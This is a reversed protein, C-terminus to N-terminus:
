RAWGAGEDGAQVGEGGTGSIGVLRTALAGTTGTPEEGTSHGAEFRTSQVDGRGVSVAKGIVDGENGDIGLQGM